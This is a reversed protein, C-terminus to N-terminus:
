AKQSFPVPQRLAAPATRAIEQTRNVTYPKSMASKLYGDVADSSLDLIITIEDSSTRKASM